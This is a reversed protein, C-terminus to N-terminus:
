NSPVDFNAYRVFRGGMTGYNQWPREKGAWVDWQHIDGVTPDTTDWGEGGYPSGFHYPTESNTLSSVVEPLVAEYLVRAPLDEVDVGNLLKLTTDHISLSVVSRGM